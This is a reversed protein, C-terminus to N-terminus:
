LNYISDTNEYLEKMKKDQIEKSFLKEVREKARRGMDNRLPEYDILHIIATVYMDIDNPPCLYGTTGIVEPLGGADSTVCPLGYAMADVVSMGQSEILSPQFYITAEKYLKDVDKQYGIFSIDKQVNYSLNWFIRLLSGNGAWIFKADPRVDRVKLAVRIWTQPNKYREVHGLTLIIM